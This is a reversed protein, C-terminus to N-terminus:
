NVVPKMLKTFIFPSTSLGFPLCTFEYIIDKFIFRLYKRSSKHVPILFYADKPDVTSMFMGYDLLKCVSRLDELKFHDTRIFKNLEKLNLIFRSKNGPKPVLFYNSIFQNAVPSYIEIAGLAQLRLVEEEIDKTEQLYLKM